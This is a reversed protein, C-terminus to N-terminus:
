RAANSSLGLHARLADDYRGFAEERADISPAGFAFYGIAMSAFGVVEVVRGGILVTSATKTDRLLLPVGVITAATSAIECAAGGVFLALFAGRDVDYARIAHAADSDADVDGLLDHPEARTGDRLRLPESFFLSAAPPPGAPARREYTDAAVASEITTAPPAALSASGITTAPTGARRPEHACAVACMAILAAVVARM